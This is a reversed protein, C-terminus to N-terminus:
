SNFLAAEFSCFELWACVKDSSGSLNLCRFSDRHGLSMLRYKAASTWRIISSIRPSVKTPQPKSRNQYFTVLQSSCAAGIHFEWWTIAKVGFSLNSTWACNCADSFTRSWCCAPANQCKTVGLRNWYKHLPPPDHGHQMIWNACTVHRLPSFVEIWWCTMANCSGLQMFSCWVDNEDSPLLWTSRTAWCPQTEQPTTDLSTLRACFPSSIGVHIHIVKFMVAAMTDHVKLRLRHLLDFLLNPM